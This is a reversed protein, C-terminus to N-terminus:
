RNSEYNKAKSDHCVLQSIIADSNMNGDILESTDIMVGTDSNRYSQTM